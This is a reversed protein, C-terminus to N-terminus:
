KKTKKNEWVIGRGTVGNVFMTQGLKMQPLTIVECEARVEKKVKFKKVIKM